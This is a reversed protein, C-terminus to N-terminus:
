NQPHQPTIQNTPRNESVTQGTRVARAADRQGARVVRAAAREGVILQAVAGVVTAFVAVGVTVLFPTVTLGLWMTVVGLAGGLGNCVTVWPLAARHAATWSEDSFRTSSTRIGGMSSRDLRGTVAMRTALISLANGVLLLLGLVVAVAIGPPNLSEM